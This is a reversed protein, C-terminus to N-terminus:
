QIANRVQVTHVHIQSSHAYLTNSQNSYTQHIQTFQIKCWTNSQNSSM